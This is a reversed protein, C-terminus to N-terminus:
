AGSAAILSAADHFVEERVILGDPDPEFANHLRTGLELMTLSEITRADTGTGLTCRYHIGVGILEGGPKGNTQSYLHLPACDVEGTGFREDALGGIAAPGQGEIGQLGDSFGAQDAYLAAIPRGDGSTWATIYRDVLDRIQSGCPSPPAFCGCDKGGQDVCLEGLLEQTEVAYSLEFSTALGGEFRFLRIEHIPPHKPPEPEMPWLHFVDVRAAIADPSIYIGATRMELEPFDDAFGQWSSVLDAKGEASFDDNSPDWLTADDAFGAFTADADRYDAHFRDVFGKAERDWALIEPVSLGTLPEVTVTTDPEITEIPATPNGADPREAPSGECGTMTAMLASVTLFVLRRRMM